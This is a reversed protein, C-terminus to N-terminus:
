IPVLTVDTYSLDKLRQKMEKLSSSVVVDLETIEGYSDAHYIGNVCQIIVKSKIRKNRHVIHLLFPLM